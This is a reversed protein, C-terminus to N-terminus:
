RRLTRGRGRGRLIRRCARAEIAPRQAKAAADEGAGARIVLLSCRVVFACLVCLLSVYLLFFFCPWSKKKKEEKQTETALVENGREAHSHM